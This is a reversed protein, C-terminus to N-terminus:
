PEDFDGLARLREVARHKLDAADRAIAAEGEREFHPMRRDLAQVLQRLHRIRQTRDAEIFSSPVM